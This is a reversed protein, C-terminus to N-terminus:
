INPKVWLGMVKFAGGEKTIYIEDFAKGNEYQANYRFKFVSLSQDSSELTRSKLSGTQRDVTEAAAIWQEETMQQRMSGHFKDRYMEHFQKADKMKLVAEAFGRAEHKPDQALGVPVISSCLLILTAVVISRHLRM